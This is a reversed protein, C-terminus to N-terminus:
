RWRPSLPISAAPSRTPSRGLWLGRRVGPEPAPKAGARIASVARLLLRTALTQLAQWRNFSDSDRALLTLLDAEALDDDVRVPASFGRLFSLAPRRKLGAFAITRREGELVFVGSRLERASAERRRSRSTATM